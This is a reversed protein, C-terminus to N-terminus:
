TTLTLARVNALIHSFPACDFSWRRSPFGPKAERCSSSPLWLSDNRHRTVTILTASAEVSSAEDREDRRTHWRLL